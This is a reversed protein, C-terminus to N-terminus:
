CPAEETEPDYVRVDIPRIVWLHRGPACRLTITEANHLGHFGLIDAWDILEVPHGKADALVGRIQIIYPNRGHRSHDQRRYWVDVRDRLEGLTRATFTEM